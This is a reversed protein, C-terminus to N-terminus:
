SPLSAIAQSLRYNRVTPSALFVIVAIGAGIASLVITIMKPGGLLDSGVGAMLGGLPSLAANLNIISTVRGRLDDPISLQLLTQNTTLFIMEFFGSLVLIPLAVSLKTSFGFGILSLSLLFLSALQMLGRREVRSLFAVVIGGAIGGIGVSSLLFGLVEPGGHFVDVAYIPPLISFIPIIFLPLVFGMMMFTRTVRQKTVYRIGEKINQLPSSQVAGPKRAPFHIYM